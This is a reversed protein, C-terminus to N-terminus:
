AVATALEAARAPTAPAALTVPAGGAEFGSAITAVQSAFVDAGVRDLTDVLREGPHRLAEWTGVVASVTSAVDDDAVRGIPEAFRGGGVDAGAFVTYGLRTAGNIRVKGGALGIDAAQHQACSNPCGSVHVRLGGSRALAPSAAIRVGAAPSDTIGLACVTSGTCSRVDVSSDAGEVELGTAALRKVLDGVRRVPVDRYQINQNRTAYLHGDGLAALDALARLDAGTLDGLPVKVTVLALGPTRQPRVGARWGGHPRHGVIEALRAPGPVDVPEPRYPTTAALRAFREDYAARFAAEGHAEIVFKMRGKRPNELDGLDIFTETLALAAALV